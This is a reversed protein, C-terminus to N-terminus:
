QEINNENDSEGLSVLKNAPRDPIQAGFTKSGNRGVVINVSWVFGTNGEQIAIVRDM